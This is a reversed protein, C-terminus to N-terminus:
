FEFKVNLYNEIEYSGNNTSLIQIDAAKITATIDISGERIWQAENANTAYIKLLEIPKNLSMGQRNKEKRIDRIIAIILDGKKEAEDDIYKANTEPWKSTHISDQTRQSYMHSYIDETIIFLEFDM